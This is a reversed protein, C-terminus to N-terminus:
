PCFTDSASRILDRRTELTDALVTLLGRRRKNDSIPEAMTARINPGLERATIAAMEAVAKVMLERKSRPIVSLM